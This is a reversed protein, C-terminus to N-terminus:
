EKVLKGICYFGHGDASNGYDFLMDKGAFLKWRVYVNVIGLGGPHLEPMRPNDEVEKIHEKLSEMAEESFGNGSDAIRVIWGKNNKRGTIKIKWPPICDTGYKIANEVLPQVILKPVRECLIDDDIDIEYELSSQYRVKMCYLYKEVYSIEEKLTTVTETADTIYRMIQTLNRCLKIVDDNKENEALIIISSLTNYYFHPNAQAQLALNTAKMEQQRSQILKDMSENLSDNMKQFSLYLEQMEVYNVAYTDTRENGMNELHTRQIVHTLHKIPKVIAASATYSIAAALIILVFLAAMTLNLAVRRPKEIISKDMASIYVWETYGTSESAFYEDQGTVPHTFKSIGSTDTGNKRYQIFYYRAIDREEMTSKYPYILHGEKDFVYVRLDKDKNKKEYSIIPKFISKCRKLVEIAGITQGYKNNYARYLSVFHEGYKIGTRAYENTYYPNRVIKRGKLRVAEEYWEENSLDKHIRNTVIGARITDGDQSYINIQDASLQTGNITVLIGSLKPMDGESFSFQGDNGVYGQLLSSYSINASVDDLMQISHEVQAVFGNNIIQLNKIEEKVLYESVVLYSLVAFALLVGASGLFFRIFLYRQFNQKKM